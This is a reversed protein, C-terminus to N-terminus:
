RAALRKLEEVQEELRAVRDEVPGAEALRRERAALEEAWGDLAKRAEEGAKLASGADGNKLAADMAGLAIAAAKASPATPAARPESPAAMAGEPSPAAAKAEPAAPVALDRVKARLDAAGALLKLADARRGEDLAKEAQVELERARARPDEQALAACCALFLLAIRKM